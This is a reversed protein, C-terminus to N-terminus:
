CLFYLVMIWYAIPIALAMLTGVVSAGVHREIYRRRAASVEADGSGTFQAAIYNYIPYALGFIIAIAIPSM